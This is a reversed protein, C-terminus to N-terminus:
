LVCYATIGLIDNKLSYATSAPAYVRDYRTNHPPTVNLVIIKANFMKMNM